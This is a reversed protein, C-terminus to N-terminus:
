PVSAFPPYEDRLRRLYDKYRSGPLTASVARRSGATSEQYAARIAERQWAAPMVCMDGAEEYQDYAILRGYRSGNGDGMCVAIITFAGVAALPRARLTM